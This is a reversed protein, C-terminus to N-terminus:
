ECVYSTGNAFRGRWTHVHRAGVVRTYVGEGHPCDELWEGDYKDGSAFTFVEKREPTGEQHNQM